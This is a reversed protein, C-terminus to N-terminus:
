KIRSVNLIKEFSRDDKCIILQLVYWEYIDDNDNLLIWKENTQETISSPLHWFTSLFDSVCKAIGKHAVQKEKRKKKGFKSIM